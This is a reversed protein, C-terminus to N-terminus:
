GQLLLAVLVGDSMARVGKEQGRKDQFLKSWKLLQSWNLLPSYQTTMTQMCVEIVLGKCVEHERKSLEIM